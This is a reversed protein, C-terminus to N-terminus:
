PREHHWEIQPMDTKPPAPFHHGRQSSLGRNPGPVFERDPWGVFEDGEIWEADGGYLEGIMLEKLQAMEGAYDPLRALDCLELPDEVMDFLQFHNGTAYYILKYRSDRVMRTSHLDEGNEGYAYDRREDSVLSIGEVTDPIPVGALDLLTPM